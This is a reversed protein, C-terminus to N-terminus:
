QCFLLMQFLLLLFRGYRCSNEGGWLVLIISGLNICCTSDRYLFDSWGRVRCKVGGGAMEM